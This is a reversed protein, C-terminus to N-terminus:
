GLSCNAYSVAQRLTRRRLRRLWHGALLVAGFGLLALSSPEPIAETSFVINDVITYNHVSGVSATNLILLRATEGAFESVDGRYLNAGLSFMSIEESGLFIRFPGTALMRISRAWSPIFGSQEISVQQWPSFPDNSAYGSAFALSYDGALQTGPAWVPSTSDMLLFVWTVGLHGERYHLVSWGSRWGPLALSWDLFTHDPPFQPQIVADEFDLNVFGQGYALTTIWFMALMFSIPTKM